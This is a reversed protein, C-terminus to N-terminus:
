PTNGKEMQLRQTIRDEKVKVAHVKMRLTKYQSLFENLSIKSDLFNEAVSESEADLATAAQKLRKKVNSPTRMEALKMYKDYLTKCAHKHVEFVNTSEELEAKSEEIKQELDINKKELEETGNIMDIVTQKLSQVHPLDNVFHELSEDDENLVKLEEITMKHLRGIVSSMVEFSQEYEEPSISPTTTDVYKSKNINSVPSDKQRLPPPNRQLDRIIAQVVRGLDSYVSFNLYGPASVVESNENVWRHSISPTIKLIPKEMPFDPGLIVLMALKNEGAIFEVSYESSSIVTVNDNFIKLTDIQRKRENNLDTLRPCFFPSSDM